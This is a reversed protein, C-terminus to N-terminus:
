EFVSEFSGNKGAIMNKMNFTATKRHQTAINKNSGHCTTLVAASELFTMVLPM